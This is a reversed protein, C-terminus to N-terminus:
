FIDQDPYPIGNEYFPVYIIIDIAHTGPCLWYQPTYKTLKSKLPQGTTVHTPWRYQVRDNNNKISKNFLIIMWCQTCTENHYKM